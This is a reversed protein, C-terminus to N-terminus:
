ANEIHHVTEKARVIAHVVKLYQLYNAENLKLTILFHDNSINAFQKIENVQFGNQLYM